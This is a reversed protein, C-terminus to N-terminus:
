AGKMAYIIRKVTQKLADTPRVLVLGVNPQGYIVKADEPAFLACPLFALDEEGTVEIRISTDAQFAEWVANWLEKTVTGAPNVVSVSIEGISQIREKLGSLEDRKTKFDVVSLRPLFGHDHLTLTCIDGVTVLFDDKGLREKLQSESIIDGFPEKLLGRMERPLKLIDGESWLDDWNASRSHTSAM